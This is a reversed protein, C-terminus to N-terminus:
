ASWPYRRYRIEEYNYLNGIQILLRSKKSVKLISFLETRGSLRTLVAEMRYQSGNERLWREDQLRRCRRAEYTHDVELDDPM